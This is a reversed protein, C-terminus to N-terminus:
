PLLKLTELSRKGSCSSSSLSMNIQCEMLESGVVMNEPSKEIKKLMTVAVNCNQELHDLRGYVYCFDNVKVYHFTMILKGGGEITLKRGRKLLKTIDLLTRVRLSKGWAFKQDCADVEEVERIAEGIVIGIRETM